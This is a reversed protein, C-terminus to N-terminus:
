VRERCSARGIETGISLASLIIKTIAINGKIVGGNSAVSDIVSPISDFKKEKELFKSLFGVLLGGIAPILVLLILTVDTLNGILTSFGFFNQAPLDFFLIKIYHICYHFVIAGLGGLLGTVAGLFLLYSDQSFTFGSFFLNIKLRSLRLYKIISEM